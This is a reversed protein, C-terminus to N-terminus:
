LTESPASRGSQRSIQERGPAGSAGSDDRMIRAHLRTIASAHDPSLRAALACSDAWFDVRGGFMM